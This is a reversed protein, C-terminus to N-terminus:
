GSRRKRAMGLVSLFFSSLVIQSGLTLALTSPIVVRLVQSPDLEGYSATGWSFLAVISGASGILILGIGVLYQGYGFLGKKFAHATM